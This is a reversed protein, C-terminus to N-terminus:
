AMLEAALEQIEAKAKPNNWEVVGLGEGIVDRYAKREYIVTQLPKLEPYDALYEGADTRESAVAHTPVQTLLSRVELDPNFDRAQDILAQMHPLTDLDFQSPRVTVILKHAATMGTRMETSDRGAVDVVVIEYRSDLDALTKGINGAKEVCAIVPVVAAAERDAHWRAASRQADADVLVVDRGLRAFEAALNTATTSKGAGGKQSAVLLIM